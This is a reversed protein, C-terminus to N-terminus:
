RAPGVGRAFGHHERRYVRGLRARHAITLAIVTSIISVLGGLWAWWPVNVMRGGAPLPQRVFMQILLLGTLGSAYVFVSAWMPHGLQKNLQANLGSQFPNAAGAALAALILLLTM